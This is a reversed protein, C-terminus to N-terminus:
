CSSAANLFPLLSFIRELGVSRSAKFLVQDGPQLYALLGQALAEVTLCTAHAVPGAAARLIQLDPSDGLIFLADLGLDQIREGVQRHCAESFDGLEAMPGLVAIRRGPLTALLALAALVAEPAANYTDDILTIGNAQVLRTRGGPLILPPLNTLGTLDQGLLDAVTLAALFNLAQHRGPLPLNFKQGKWILHDGRFQAGQNFGYPVVRGSWVQQATKLLLEDEGNLVAVGQPDLGSLLECKAAAIAELSGLRGIHASGINTIVALTPRAMLALRRIEGPGRMAMELVVAQHNADLRLLTGATGIDNNENGQSKLVGAGLVLALLEKTSTKGASGTVAIVPLNFRQRWHHALAQYAWLTDRVRIHPWPVERDSLLAGAGKQLALPLFDHGDFHEGVLPVFLDGPQVSRSDTSIGTVDPPVGIGSWTGQLVTLLESGSFHSM